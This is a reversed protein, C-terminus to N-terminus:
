IVRPRYAGNAYPKSNIEVHLLKLALLFDFCKSPIILKNILEMM